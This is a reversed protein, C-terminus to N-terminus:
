KHLFNSTINPQFLLFWYSPCDKASTHPDCLRNIQSNPLNCLLLKTEAGTFLATLFISNTQRPVLFYQVFPCVSTSTPFVKQSCPSMKRVRIYTLNTKNQYVCIRGHHWTLIMNRLHKTSKDFMFTSFSMKLGRVYSLSLMPLRLDEYSHDM